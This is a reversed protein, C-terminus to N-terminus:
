HRRLVSALVPNFVVNPVAKPAGVGSKEEPNVEVAKAKGLAVVLCHCIKEEPNEGSAKAKELAAM